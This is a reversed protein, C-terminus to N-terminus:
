ERGMPQTIARNLLCTRRRDQPEGVNRNEEDDEKCLEVIASLVMVILSPAEIAQMCTELQLQEMRMVFRAEEDQSSVSFHLKQPPKPPNTLLVVVVTVPQLKMVNAKRGWCENMKYFLTM